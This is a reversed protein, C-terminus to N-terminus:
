VERGWGKASLCTKLRLLPVFLLPVILSKSGAYQRVCFTFNWWKWESLWFKSPYNRCLVLFCFVFSIGQSVVLLPAPRDRGRTPWRPCQFSARKQQCGLAILPERNWSQFLDRSLKARKTQQWFTPREITLMGLENRKMSEWDEEMKAHRCCHSQRTIPHFANEGSSGQPQCLTLYSSNIM